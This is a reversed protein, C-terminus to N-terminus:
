VPARAMMTLEYERGEVLNGHSPDSLTFRGAGATLSAVGSAVSASASNRWDSEDAPEGDAGQRRVVRRGRATLGSRNGDVGVGCWCRM